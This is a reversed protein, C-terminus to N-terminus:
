VNWAEIVTPTQGEAVILEYMLDDCIFQMACSLTKFERWTPDRNPREDSVRYRGPGGRIRFLRGGDGTVDWHGHNRRVVHFHSIM